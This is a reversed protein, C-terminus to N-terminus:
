AISVFRQQYGVFDGGPKAAATLKEGALMGSYCRVDHADALREGATVHAQGCGEGGGLDAVADIVAIGPNEHV